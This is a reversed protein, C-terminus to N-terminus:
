GKINKPSFVSSIYNKHYNNFLTENTAVLEWEDNEKSFNISQKVGFLDIDLDSNAPAYYSSIPEHDLAGNNGNVENVFSIKGDTSLTKRDMFFILPQGIYSQQNDDVCFGWQIGTPPNPNSINLLREFKMHEFPIEIKFIDKSLIANDEGSYEETGWEKNFLQQHQKALFTGLGKYAYKVERFPLAVNTQSKNVDVYETIDYPSDSSPNDYFNNLTNVIMESGEVYTILNFMKFLSTLFDLVKM